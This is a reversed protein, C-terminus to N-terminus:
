KSIIVEDGVKIGYNSVEGANIELVRDVPEPSAYITPSDGSEPEAGYVIGSVENNRIWVIDISFRMDKMWFRQIAPESFIFLMGHNKPLSDRNSLGKSQLLLNDAIEVDFVGLGIKVQSIKLSQNSEKVSTFIIALALFVAFFGLIILFRKM